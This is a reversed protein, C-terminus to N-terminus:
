AATESAPKLTAGDEVGVGNRADDRAKKEAAKRVVEDLELQGVLGLTM